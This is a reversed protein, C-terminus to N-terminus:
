RTTQKTTQRATQKTTQRATQRTTQRTTQRATQRATQRTRMKKEKCDAAAACGSCSDCGSSCCGKNQKKLKRKYIFAILAVYSVALLIVLDVIKM